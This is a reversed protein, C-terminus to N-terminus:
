QPMAVVEGGARSGLANYTKMDINESFFTVSGDCLLFTSGGPHHSQFGRGRWSPSGYPPNAKAHAINFNIPLSTGHVNGTSTTWVLSNSRAVGSTHGMMITNSTGDSIAAIRVPRTDGMYNFIGRHYKGGGYGVGPEPCNTTPTATSGENCGGCGYQARSTAAGTYGMNEGTIHGDGFSGVYHTVQGTISGTTLASGDKCSTNPITRDNLLTEGPDSPCHFTPVKASYVPQMAACGVSDRFECQDYLAQQELQPLILPLFGWGHPNSFGGVSPFTKFSSHYNHLALGLQKLHNSCQMRRAAERAAQVAPLLLAILIGIIAIVVLLEVLTFGRSPRSVGAHM